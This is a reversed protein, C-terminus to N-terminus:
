YIDTSRRGACKRLSTFGSVREVNLDTGTTYTNRQSGLFVLM